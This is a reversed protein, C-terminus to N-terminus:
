QRSRGPRAHKANAFKDRLLSLFQADSLRQSCFAELLSHEHRSLAAVKSSFNCRDLDEFSKSSTAVDTEIQLQPLIQCSGYGVVQGTSLDIQVHGHGFAQGRGSTM